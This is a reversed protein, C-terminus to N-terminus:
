TKIIVAILFPLDKNWEIYYGKDQYINCLLCILISQSTSGCAKSLRRVKISSFFDVNLPFYDLGEKLPRAM